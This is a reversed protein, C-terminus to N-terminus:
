IYNTIFSVWSSLQSYFEVTRSMCSLQLPALLMQLIAISPSLFLKEDVGKRKCFGGLKLLKLLFLIGDEIFCVCIQTSLNKTM